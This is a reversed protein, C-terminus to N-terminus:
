SIIGRFRRKKLKAISAIGVQKDCMEVVQTASQATISHDMDDAVVSPKVVAALHLRKQRAAFPPDNKVEQGLVGWLGIGDFVNPPVKM